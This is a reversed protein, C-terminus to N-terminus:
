ALQMADLHHNPTTFVRLPIDIVVVIFLFGSPLLRPSVRCHFVLANNLLQTISLPPSSALQITTSLFASPNKLDFSFHGKYLSAADSRCRFLLPISRQFSASIVFSYNPIAIAPQNAFTSGL